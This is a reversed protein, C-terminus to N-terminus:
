VPQSGQKPELPSFILAARGWLMQFWVEIPTDEPLSQRIDTRFNPDQQWHRARPM